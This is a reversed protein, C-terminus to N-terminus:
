ASTREARLIVPSGLLRRLGLTAAVGEAARSVAAVGLARHVAMPVAFQGERATVRFGHEAFADAIEKDKFVRFPRTDKEVGKKLGFTAGAVANLSRTTPYDVVVARAAVRCLEGVLARWDHAHPLLRFALAADFSGPEFPSALLPGSAFEIRGADVLPEVRDLCRVSSAYVTVAYGADAMPGALQGHGGGFEVVRAGSGLPRVLELTTRAQVDLFWAGVPGAFRRAYGDSSTEVDADEAIL